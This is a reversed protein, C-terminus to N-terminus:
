CCHSNDAQRCNHCGCKGTAYICSCLFNVQEPIFLLSFLGEMEKKDIEGKAYREKLTDLPSKKPHRTPGSNQNILKVVIWIIVILVVLGIIWGWFMGWHHASFDWM